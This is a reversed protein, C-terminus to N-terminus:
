AEGTSKLKEPRKLSEKKTRLQKEKQIAALLKDKESENNLKKNLAEEKEKEDYIQKDSMFTNFGLATEAKFIEYGDPLKKLADKTFPLSYLKDDSNIEGMIGNIIARQRSFPNVTIYGAIADLVNDCNYINGPNNRAHDYISDTENYSGSEDFNLEDEEPAYEECRERYVYKHIIEHFLSSLITNSAVSLLFFRNIFVDRPVNKEKCVENILEVTEQSLLLNLPKLPLEKLNDAIYTKAMDSNPTKIEERLLEAEFRLAKDLYADRKLCAEDMKHKMFVLLPEYVNVLVKTKNTEKSNIDM